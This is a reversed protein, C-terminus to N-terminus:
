RRAAEAAELAADVIAYLSPGDAGLDAAIWAGYAAKRAADRVEDTIPGRHRNREIRGILDLVTDAHGNTSRADWALMADFLEPHQVGLGGVGEGIELMRDYAAAQAEAAKRLEELAEREDDTPSEPILARLTALDEPSVLVMGDIRGDWTIAADIRALAEANTM